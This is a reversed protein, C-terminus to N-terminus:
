NVFKYMSISDAYKGMIKLDKRFRGEQRFGAKRYLKIANTNTSFVRLVIKEIVPNESAWEILENMLSKGIGKGRWKKNIYITLIGIHSSKRLDYNNLRILGIIKNRYEAAIFLKGNARKHERIRNKNSWITETFEDPEVMSYIKECSIDYVLKRFQAADKLKATRLIIKKGNKAEIIKEKITGMPKIETINM